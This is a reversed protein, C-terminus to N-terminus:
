PAGGLAGRVARELRVPTIPKSLLTAAGGNLGEVADGGYGTVYLVRLEPRQERLRRVIEQGGMGGPLLLDAVLLDVAGGAQSFVALAQAGDGAELVQYGVQRLHRAALGRVAADDEVLLIREGRPEGPQESAASAPHALAPDALPLHVDFRTGRGVTSEVAVWGRHQAVIGYVTALGLGTGRGRGKTTFFPEFIHAMHEPAIGAGDDSVSLRVAPGPRAGPQRAAQAGDVVVREAEIRVRGGRPVADRANVVLNMLVQELLNVDALVPLPQSPVQCQLDVHEGIIRRLMVAVGEMLERLDLGQLLLPRRQAFTLLQRTLQAAREGAEAMERVVERDPPALTGGHLLAEANMLISSLVNNFDHAIGAALMGLNEMKQGQRALDELHHRETVDQVVGILVPAGGPGPHPAAEIAVQVQRRSGDPRLLAHELRQAPGGSLATRLAAEVRARDPAPISQLVDAVTRPEFGPERGLLRVMEASCRLEADPLQVAGAARLEWSGVAAIRQAASLAAESARLAEEAARRDAVEREKAALEQELRTSLARLEAVKADLKRVLREKYVALFEEEPVAPPPDAAEPGGQEMVEQIIRLLDQPEQPKIVFRAAGLSLGLAADKEDTYTATYFVFPIGRTAPRSKLERCLQFGDMRPMLVDSVVLDFHGQEAAALAEEGDQASVVEHGASRLTFELLYRNEAVDDANLIRM